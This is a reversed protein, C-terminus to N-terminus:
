QHCLENFKEKEIPNLNVKKLSQQYERVKEAKAQIKEMFSADKSLEPHQKLKDTYQKLTKLSVQFEILMKENENMNFTKKSMDISAKEMQSLYEESNAFGSDAVVKEQLEQSTNFADEFQETKQEKQTQKNCASMAM